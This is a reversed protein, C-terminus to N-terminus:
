SIEYFPSPEILNQVRLRYFRQLLHAEDQRHQSEPEGFLDDM